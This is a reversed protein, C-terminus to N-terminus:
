DHAIGQALLRKRFVVLVVGAIVIPVTMVRWMIDYSGLCDVVYGAILPGILMGVDSGVYNTCSAAGRREKPALKMCLAQIQPQCSGFGFAAVFAAILFMWVNSAFSIIFFSLAFCGMAPLMVKIPGFKDALRGTLPRTFIMTVAYVTFYYGIDSGVGKVDGYIALFSSINYFAISLCCLILAPVVAEAAIMNRVSVKFKKTRVFHLKIRSAAFAGILMLGGAVAFTLKYGVADALKLSVTPAITQSIAGTMTFYGIGTGMKQPPLTDSAVTLACTATFAQGAGQLLRFAVLMPVGSSISYGFMSAAIALMAITLIWKRNGTDIAPASFFKFILATLGFLSTVLGVVAATVNFTNTYKGIISTSMQMAFNLIMNSAFVSVFTRNWIKGSAAGASALSAEGGANSKFAGL